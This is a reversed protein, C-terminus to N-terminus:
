PAGTVDGVGPKGLEAGPFLLVDAGADALEVPLEIAVAEESGVPPVDIPGPSLPGVPVSGTLEPKESGAVEGTLEPVAGKVDAVPVPLPDPAGLKLLKGLEVRAEDERGAVPGDDRGVVPSKGVPGTVGDPVAGKEDTDVM